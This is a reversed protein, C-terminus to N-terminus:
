ANEYEKPSFLKREKPMAMSVTSAMQGNRNGVAVTLGVDYGIAAGSISVGFKALSNGNGLNWVHRDLILRLRSFVQKAKIVGIREKLARMADQNVPHEANILEELLQKEGNKAPDLAAAHWCFIATDTIIRLDRLTGGKSTMLKPGDDSRDLLVDGVYDVLAQAREEGQLNSIESFSSIPTNM